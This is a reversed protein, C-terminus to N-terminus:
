LHSLTLFVVWLFWVVAGVWRWVVTEAAEAMDAVTRCSFVGDSLPTFCCRVPFLIKGCPRLSSEYMWALSNATWWKGEAHFGLAATSCAAPGQFGIPWFGLPVQGAGKCVVSSGCHQPHFVQWCCNPMSSYVFQEKIDLFHWYAMQWVFVAHSLGSVEGPSCKGAGASLDM